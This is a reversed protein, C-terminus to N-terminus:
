GQQVHASKPQDGEEGGSVIKHWAVRFNEPLGATARSMNKSYDSSGLVGFEEKRLTINISLM